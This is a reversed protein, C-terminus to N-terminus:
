QYAKKRAGIYHILITKEEWLIEYVIGLTGIKIRYTNDYGNLKCIDAKKFPIPDNKLILIITKTKQKQKNDLKVLKKLAKRKIKINFM